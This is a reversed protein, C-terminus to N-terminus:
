KDRNRKASWSQPTIKVFQVAHIYTDIVEDLRKMEWEPALKRSMWALRERVLAEDTVFEATGHVMASEYWTTYKEEPMQVHAVATYCVNPNQALAGARTGGRRCHFWLSHDDDDLVANVPTAYPMGDPLILSLTGWTCENLIRWAKDHPLNRKPASM